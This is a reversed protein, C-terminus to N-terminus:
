DDLLRAREIGKDTLRRGGHTVQVYGKMILYPEVRLAIAKADRSKGIATAITSVSAQYKTEGEGTTQKAHTYLFRLMNQMDPTLGDRTIDNAALVTAVVQETICGDEFMVANKVLNNVQRPVGACAEAIIRAAVDTIQAGLQQANYRAIQALQEITYPDLRPRVSFRNIFADPLLGEDTTTGIICIHPYPLIGTPTPMVRDEMIAYLVEPQTSSSKGRREMIGQQHIEEIKLIDGHCMTTRLELLTEGSIPAEVEFVRVGLENAIVHSFTSKGTGSAAVLLIHPLPEVRRVASSLAARVLAKARDQGIVDDLKTPRLPNSTRDESAAPSVAMTM